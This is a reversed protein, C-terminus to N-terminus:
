IGEINKQTFWEMQPFRLATLTGGEFCAGTDINAYWDTLPPRPILTVQNRWLSNKPDTASYPSHGFINFVGPLQLPEDRQWISEKDQIYQDLPKHIATHSVLLHRGDKDVLDEFEIYLPLEKMWKRHENLTKFEDQPYSALTQLGGNRFKIWDRYAWVQDAAMMCFVEHNGMVCLYGGEMVFKVVDYSRPGRDCLDGVFCIEDDPFQEMLALLTKFTGHVDGICIM